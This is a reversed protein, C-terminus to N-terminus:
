YCGFTHQSQFQSTEYEFQEVSSIKRILPMISQTDFMDISFVLNKKQLKKLFFKVKREIEDNIYMNNSIKVGETTPEGFCYTLFTDHISCPLTSGNDDKLEVEMTWQNKQISLGKIIRTVRGLINMKKIGFSMDVLSVAENITYYSKIPQQIPDQDGKGSKSFKNPPTFYIDSNNSTNLLVRKRAYIPTQTLSITSRDNSEVNSHRDIDIDSSHNSSNMVDIGSFHNSKGEFTNNLEGCSYRNPTNNSTKDDIAQHRYVLEPVISRSDAKSSLLSYFKDKKLGFYRDQPQHLQPKSIHSTNLSTNKDVKSLVKDLPPIISSPPTFQNKSYVESLDSSPLTKDGTVQGDLDHHLNSIFEKRKGIENKNLFAKRNFRERDESFETISINEKNSLDGFTQGNCTSEQFLKRLSSDTKLKEKNKCSSPIGPDNSKKDFCNSTRKELLHLNNSDKDEVIGDVNEFSNMSKLYSNSTMSTDGERSLLSKEKETKKLFSVFKKKIPTCFKTIQRLKPSGFFGKKPTISKNKKVKDISPQFLDDLRSKKKDISSTVDGISVIDSGYSISTDVSLISSTVDDKSNETQDFLIESDKSTNSDLGKSKNLWQRMLEKSAETSDPLSLRKKKREQVQKIKTKLSQPLHLKREIVSMANNRNYQEEVDGGLITAVGNNIYLIRNYYSVNGHIAIKTGPASITKLNTIPEKEIAQIINVGDSLEMLLMRSKEFEDLNCKSYNHFNHSGEEENNFWALDAKTESLESYISYLPIDIRVVWNIQFVQNILVNGNTSTILPLSNHTTTDGIDCHLWQYFVFDKLPILRAGGKSETYFKKAAMLFDDTLPINVSKFYNKISLVEDM